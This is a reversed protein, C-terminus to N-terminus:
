QSRGRIERGAAIESQSVYGLEKAKGAHYQSKERLATALNGNVIKSKALYGESLSQHFDAFNPHLRSAAELYTLTKHGDKRLAFTSSLLIHSLFERYTMTRLYTGSKQARANVSFDKTYEEDTFYKGGSTTEINQEKFAPDVYRVFLHDPAAVPYMPYGLRQAVAVYLLPMTYCIGKRTDLIGNLYYYKQKARSFPDRQDVLVGGPEQM